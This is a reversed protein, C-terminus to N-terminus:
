KHVGPWEQKTIIVYVAVILTLFGFIISIFDRKRWYNRYKLWGLLFGIFGAFFWLIIFSKLSFFILCLTLVIITIVFLIARELIFRKDCVIM